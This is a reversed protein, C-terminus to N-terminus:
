VKKAERCYGAEILSKAQRGYWGQLKWALGTDILYQWAELLQEESSAEEIGEVLTVAKYYTM